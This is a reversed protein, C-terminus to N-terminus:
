IGVPEKTGHWVFNKTPAVQKCASCKMSVLLGPNKAHMEAHDRPLITVPCRQEATKGDASAAVRVHVVADRLPVRFGKARDHDSLEVPAPLTPSASAGTKKSVPPDKKPTVDEDPM